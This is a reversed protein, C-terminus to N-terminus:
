KLEIKEIKENTLDNAFVRILLAEANDILDKEISYASFYHAIDHLYVKIKKIQRPRECAPLFDGGTSPHNVCWLVQPERARNFANKMEGWLNREKAKGIYIANCQSNYFVYIGHAKVLIDKIKKERSGTMKFIEWKAGRKSKTLDIPYYEVIPKISYKRADGKGREIAKKVIKAIQNADLKDGNNKWRILTQHTIGIASALQRDTKLNLKQKIVSLLKKPEM